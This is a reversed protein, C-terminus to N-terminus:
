IFNFVEEFKNEDSNFRLITLSKMLDGFLIFDDKIKLHLCEIYEIQTKSLLILDHNDISFKYM